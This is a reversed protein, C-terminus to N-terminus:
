HIEWTKSRKQACCLREKAWPKMPMSNSTGEVTRQTRSKWLSGRSSNSRSSFREQDAPKAKCFHVPPISLDPIPIFIKPPNKPEQHRYKMHLHHVKQYKKARSPQQISNIHIMTQLHFQKPEQHRYKM